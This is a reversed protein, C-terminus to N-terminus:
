KQRSEDAPRMNETEVAREAPLVRLLAAEVFGSARRAAAIGRRGVCKMTCSGVRKPDSEGDQVIPEERLGGLGGGAKGEGHWYSTGISGHRVCNDCM